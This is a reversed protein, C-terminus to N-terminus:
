LLRGRKNKQWKQIQGGEEGMAAANFLGKFFANLDEKKCAFPLGRVRICAHETIANRQAIRRQVQAIEIDGLAFVSTNLTKYNFYLLLSAGEVYRSGLSSQHKRLAKEVDTSTALQLYAEGSARGDANTCLHVM